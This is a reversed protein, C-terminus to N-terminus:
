DGDEDSGQQTKQTKRLHRGKRQPKTPPPSAERELQSSELQDEGEEEEVAESRMTSRRKRAKLDDYDAPLSEEGIDRVAGRRTWDAECNPCKLRPTTRRLLDYCHRHLYTDCEDLHSDCAIGLTCLEKCHACDFIEDEYTRRLYLELEILARTSLTYRGRPSKYLWGNAVFNKLTAEAQSKPMSPKLSSAERLCAIEGVCFSDRPALVIHDIVAKYLGIEAPTYETAVKAIEGEVTNVLAWIRKGSVEDIRSKFEISLPVLTENIEQIYINVEAANYMQPIEDNLSRCAEESKKWLVAALDESVYRRSVM